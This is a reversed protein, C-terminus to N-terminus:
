FSEKKAQTRLKDILPVFEDAPFLNPIDGTNLMSNIDELVFPTNMDIDSSIFCIPKRDIGARIM